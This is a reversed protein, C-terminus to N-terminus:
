QVNKGEVTGTDTVFAAFDKLHEDSESRRGMEGVEKGGLEM